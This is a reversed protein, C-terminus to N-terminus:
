GRPLFSSIDAWRKLLGEEEVDLEQPMVILVEAVLSGPDGGRRPLGKGKLRLKAGAATKPALSIRVDGTLTAIDVKAGFHAEWPAVRVRVALDHPDDVDITFVPHPAIAVRLLLDGAPAGGVGPQGEGRLRIKTGQVTGPPIKVNYTKEENRRGGDPGVIQHTLTITRTIGHFADELPITIEVESDTGERPRAGSTQAGPQRGFPDATEFPSRRPRGFPDPGAGGNM